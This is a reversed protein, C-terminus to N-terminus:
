WFFRNIAAYVCNVGKDKSVCKDAKTKPKFKLYHDVYSTPM